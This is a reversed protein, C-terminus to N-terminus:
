QRRRVYRGDFGPQWTRGSDVSTEFLQRVTDRHIPFFTLKQLVRAGTPSLTWGEFRMAGDTFSGAYDLSSGGDAVWIQRWQRRNTDWFNMSKGSSAMPGGGTWNELLVCHELMPEIRNTSLVPVNPAGPPAQWPTVIWDGIWFDLQQAEALTRCPFRAATMREVVLKYRADRRVAAFDPLTDIISVPIANLPALRDLHAFASDINGSVAHVRALRYLATPPQFQLELARRYASLADANRGLAQNAMGLRLWAMGQRPATTSIRSYLLATRQWDSARFASDAALSDRSQALASSNALLLISLSLFRM